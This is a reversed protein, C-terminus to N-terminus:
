RCWGPRVTDGLLAVGVLAPVLVETVLFVATV